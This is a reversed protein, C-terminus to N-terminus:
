IITTVTWPTSLIAKIIIMTMVKIFFCCCFFLWLCKTERKRPQFRMKLWTQIHISLLHQEKKIAPKTNLQSHSTQWVDIPGKYLALGALNTVTICIYPWRPKEVNIYKIIVMIVMLDIPGEYLPLDAKKNCYHLITM